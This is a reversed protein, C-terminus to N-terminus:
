RRMEEKKRNPAKAGSRTPSTGLRAPPGAYWASPLSQGERGGKRGGERGEKRGGETTERRRGGDGTTLRKGETGNKCNALVPRREGEGERRGGERREFFDVMGGALFGEGEAAGEVAGTLEVRETFSEGVV